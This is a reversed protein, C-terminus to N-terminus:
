DKELRGREDFRYRRPPRDGYRIERRRRTAWRATLILLVLAGVAVLVLAILYGIPVWLAVNGAACGRCM